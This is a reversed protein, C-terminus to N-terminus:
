VAADQPDLDHPRRGRRHADGRERDVPAPPPGRRRDALVGREARAPVPRPRQPRAPVRAAAPAPPLVRHQRRGVPAAPGQRLCPRPHRRRDVADARVDALVPGDRSPAVPRPGERQHRPHNQRDSRSPTLAPPEAVVRPLAVQRRQVPLRHVAGPRLLVVGDGRGEPATSSMDETEDRKLTNLRSNERRSRYSSHGTPAPRSGCRIATTVIGGVLEEAM